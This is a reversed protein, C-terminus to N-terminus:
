DFHRPRLIVATLAVSEVSVQEMSARQQSLTCLALFLSCWFLHEKAGNKKKFCYLFPQLQEDRDKAKTERLLTTSQNRQSYPWSYIHM